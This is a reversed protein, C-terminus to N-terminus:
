GNADKYAAHFAQWEEVMKTEDAVSENFANLAAQRTEKELEKDAVIADLCARYDALEGQYAKIASITASVDEQTAAAPDPMAPASGEM